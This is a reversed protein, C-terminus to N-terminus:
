EINLLDEAIAWKSRHNSIEKNKKNSTQVTEIVLVETLPGLGRPATCGNGVFPNRPV